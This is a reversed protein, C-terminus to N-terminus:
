IKKLNLKKSKQKSLGSLKKDFSYLRQGMIYKMRYENFSSVLSYIVFLFMVIVGGVMGLLEAGGPYDLVYHDIM